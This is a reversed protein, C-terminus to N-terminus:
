AAEKVDWADIVAGSREKLRVLRLHIYPMEYDPNMLWPDTVRLYAIKSAEYAVGPAEKTLEECVLLRLTKEAFGGIPQAENEWRSITEPATKEDLKKAFEVATLRLIKRLAKIEYGRLRIPTLCRLVAASALLERQKPLEISVENEADVRRVAANHVYTKLGVLTSADYRELPVNGETPTKSTVTPDRAGDTLRRGM